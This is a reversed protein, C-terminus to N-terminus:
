VSEAGCLIAIEDLTLPIYDGDTDSACYPHYALSWDPILSKGECVLDVVYGQEKHRYLAFETCPFLYAHEAGKAVQLDGVLYGPVPNVDVGINMDEQYLYQGALYLVRGNDLELYYHPGECAGEELRLARTVRYDEKVILGEAQLEAVHRAVAEYGSPTASRWVFLAYIVGGVLVGVCFVLEAIHVSVSVRVIWYVIAMVALLALFGLIPKKNQKIM